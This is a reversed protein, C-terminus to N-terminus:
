HPRARFGLHSGQNKEKAELFDVLFWFLTFLLFGTLFSKKRGKKVHKQFFKSDTQENVVVLRQATIRGLHTVQTCYDRM